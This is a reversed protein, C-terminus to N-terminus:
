SASRNDAERAGAAEMITATSRGIHPDFRVARLSRDQPM